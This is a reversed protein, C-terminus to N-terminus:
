TMTEEITNFSSVCLLNTYHVAFFADIFVALLQAASIVPKLVQFSMSYSNLSGAFCNWDIQGINVLIISGYSPVCPMLITNQKCQVLLYPIFESETVM